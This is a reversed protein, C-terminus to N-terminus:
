EVPSRQGHIRGIQISLFLNIEGSLEKELRGLVKQIRGHNLKLEIRIRQCKRAWRDGEEDHQQLQVRFRSTKRLGAGGWRFQYHEFQARHSEQQKLFKTNNKYVWQPESENSKSQSGLKSVIQRNIRRQPMWNLYLLHWLYFVWNKANLDLKKSDTKAAGVYRNASAM